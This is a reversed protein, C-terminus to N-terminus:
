PVNVNGRVLRNAVAVYEAEGEGARGADFLELPPAIALPYEVQEEKNIITISARLAGKDPVVDVALEGSPLWSYENFEAGKIVFIPTEKDASAEQRFLVRIPASGDSLLLPPEQRYEGEGSRVVLLSLAEYSRDGASELFHDLVGKLPRRTINAQAHAPNAALPSAAPIEKAAVAPHSAGEKAGDADTHIEEVETRVAISRGKFDAAEATARMDSIMVGNGGVRTLTLTGLAGDRSLPAAAVYVITMSNTDGDSRSSEIKLSGFTGHGIPILRPASAAGQLVYDLTVTVRSIRELGKLDLQYSNSGTPKMILQAEAWSSVPSLLLFLLLLLAPKVARGASLASAASATRCPPGFWAFWLLLPILFQGSLYIAVYLPVLLELLDFLEMSIQFIRFILHWGILILTGWFAYKLRRVAPSGSVALLLALYLPIAFTHNYLAAPRTIAFDSQSSFATIVRYVLADVANMYYFKNLVVWPLFLISAWFLARLFFPLPNVGESGCRQWALATALVLLLMVVQGLYVHLLEFFLPWRAGVLTVLAIRAINVAFLMVSGAALGAATRRLSAPHALVFAAYILMPHIATCELVIRVSFGAVTILDGAVLPAYGCLALLQGSLLAIVGNLPLLYSELWVSTLLFLCCLLAFHLWPPTTVPLETHPLLIDTQHADM